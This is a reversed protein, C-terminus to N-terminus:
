ILEVIYPMTLPFKYARNSNGCVSGVVHLMRGAVAQCAVHSGFLVQQINACDTAFQHVVWRASVGLAVKTDGRGRRWTYETPM